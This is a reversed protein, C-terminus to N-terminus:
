KSEGFIQFNLFFGFQSFLKNTEKKSLLSTQKRYRWCVFFFSTCDLVRLCRGVLCLVLSRASSCVLLAGVSDTFPGLGVLRLTRTPERNSAFPTLYSDGWYIYV